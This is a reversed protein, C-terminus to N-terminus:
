YHSTTQQMHIMPSSLIPNQDPSINLVLLSTIIDQPSVALSDTCRGCVRAAPWLLEHLRGNEAGLLRYGYCSDGAFLTGLPSLGGSMLHPSPKIPLPAPQCCRHTRSLRYTPKSWFSIKIFKEHHPPPPTHRHFRVESVARLTTPRNLALYTGPRFANQFFSQSFHCIVCVSWGNM